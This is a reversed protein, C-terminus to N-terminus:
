TDWVKVGSIGCLNNSIDVAIFSKKYLSDRTGKRERERREQRAGKRRKERGIGSVVRQEREENLLSVLSM